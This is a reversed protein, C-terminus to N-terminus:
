GSYNVKTEHGEPNTYGYNLFTVLLFVVTFIGIEKM